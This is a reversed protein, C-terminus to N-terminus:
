SPSRAFLVSWPIELSSPPCIMDGTLGDVAMVQWTMHSSYWGAANLDQMRGLVCRMRKNGRPPVM